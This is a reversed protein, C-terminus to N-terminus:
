MYRDITECHPRYSHIAMLLGDGLEKFAVLAFRFHIFGFVWFVLIALSLVLVGFIGFVGVM